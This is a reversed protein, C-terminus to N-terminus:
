YLKGSELKFDVNDRNRTRYDLKKGFVAKIFVEQAQEQRVLYNWLRRIPGTSSNVLFPTNDKNLLSRYRHIAPGQGSSEVFCGIFLLCLHHFSCLIILHM